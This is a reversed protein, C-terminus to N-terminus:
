GATDPAVASVPTIRLNDVVVDIGAGAKDVYISVDPFTTMKESVIFTGKFANWETSNWVDGVQNLDPWIPIYEVEGARQDMSHVTIIPCMTKEGRIHDRFCTFPANQNDPDILKFQASVEWEDGVVLCEQDLKQRIGHWRESRGTHKLAFSSGGYGPMIISLEGKGLVTYFRADRTELDGNRILNDCTLYGSSTTTAKVISFDDIEINKTTTGAAVYFSLADSNILNATARFVGYVVQWMNFSTEFPGIVYAIDPYQTAQGETVVQLFVIPCGDPRVYIHFPNCIAGKELRVRGQIVYQEGEVLCERPIMQSPGWFWHKREKTTLCYSSPDTTELSPAGGGEIVDLLAQGTYHWGYYTGDEFGANTVLDACTDHNQDLRTVYVDYIQIEVGPRMREIFFKVNDAMAMNADVTFSGKFWNWEGVEWPGAASAVNWVTDIVERTETDILEGTIPDIVDGATINMSRISGRPCIDGGFKANTDCSAGSEGNTYELRMRMNVEYTVGEIMCRMDFFYALGNGWLSRQKSSLAHGFWDEVYKLGGGTHHWQSNSADGERTFDNNKILQYCADSGDDNIVSPVSLEFSDMYETCTAPPDGYSLLAFEPWYVFDNEDRFEAKYHGSPLAVTYVRKKAWYTNAEENVGPIIKGPRNMKNGKEDRIYLYVNETGQSNVTVTVKRGCVGFCYQACSDIIDNCVLGLDKFDPKATVLEGATEAERDPNLSGDDSILVDEVNSDELVSCINIPEVDEEMSINRFITLVNFTFERAINNVTFAASGICGTDNSFKSFHVQKITTGNMAVDRKNPYLRIGYLANEVETANEPDIPDPNFLPICFTRVGYAMVTRKYEESYGVIRTGIIDVADVYNIDIGIRNDAMLGDKIIFNQGNGLFIGAESNRYSRTNQLVAPSLPAYGDLYSGPYTQVGNGKNSHAINDEFKSLPVEMPSYDLYDSSGEGKITSQINLWFGSEESGTAVNGIINSTPSRILFTAPTDDQEGPITYTTAQTFGGLNGSLTNNTEFGGTIAYCHGKTNYAVNQSIVLNSTGYVNICRQNSDVISNRSIISHSNGSMYFNIPFRHEVGQQGFGRFEVGEIRQVVGPSHYVILHAGNRADVLDDSEFRINRSLFAFEMAYDKGTVLSKGMNIEEDFALTWRHNFTQYSATIKTKIGDEYDLSNSPVYVDTGVGWCDSVVDPFLPVGTGGGSVFKFTIDDYDVDSAYDEMWVFLLQISVAAADDETIDYFSECTVWEFGIDPCTAVAKHKISGDEMTLKLTATSTDFGGSLRLKTSFYYRNNVVMCSPVINFMLSAWKFQRGSMRFFKNDEEKDYLVNLFSLRGVFSMYPYTFPGMFSAGGDKDDEGNGWEADGNYALNSCVAEPKPFANVPPHEIKFTSLSIEVGPEPGEISFYAHIIDNNLFLKSLSAQGALTFWEGDNPADRPDLWVLPIMVHKKNKNMATYMITPCEIGYKFCRSMETSNSHTVRLRATFFMQTDPLLCERIPQIDYRPGHWFMRRNSVHYYNSGDESDESKMEDFAGLGGDFGTFFPHVSSEDKFDQHLIAQRCSSDESFKPPKPYDNTLPAGDIMEDELYVWTPCTPPLGIINLKGGAVVIPKSGIQCPQGFGGCANANQSNPVFSIDSDGTMIVRINPTDTVKEESTMSLEGEVIIFPTRITVRASNPVDLKGEIHLGGVVDLTSADTKDMTLCKGCPITVKGAGNTYSQVTISWPTCPTMANNCTLPYFDGTDRNLLRATNSAIPQDASLTLLTSLHSVVVAMLLKM